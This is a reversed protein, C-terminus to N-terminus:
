LCGCKKSLKQICWYICWPFRWEKLHIKIQLDKKQLIWFSSASIVSSGGGLQLYPSTVCESCQQLSEYGQTYITFSIHAAAIHQKWPKERSFFSIYHLQTKTVWRMSSSNTQIKQKTYELSKLGSHLQQQQQQMICAAKKKKLHCYEPGRFHHFVLTRHSKLVQKSERTPGGGWSARQPNVM